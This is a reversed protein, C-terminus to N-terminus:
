IHILSLDEDTITLGVKKQIRDMAMEFRDRCTKIHEYQWGEEAQEVWCDFGVVAEAAAEPLTDKVGMKLATALRMSAKTLDHKFPEKIYWDDLKEPGPTDEGDLVKMAKTAFHGADYYDVMEDAEYNVIDKYKNALQSKYDTGPIVRENLKSINMHDCAVLTMSALGMLMLKVASM